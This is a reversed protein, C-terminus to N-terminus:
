GVTASRPLHRDVLLEDAAADVPGGATPGKLLRLSHSEFGRQRRESAAAHRILPLPPIRVWPSRVAEVIKLIAAIFRARGGKWAVLIRSTCRLFTRATDCTSM